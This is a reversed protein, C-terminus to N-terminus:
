KELRVVYWQLYGGNGVDLECYNDRLHIAKEEPTPFKDLARPSIDPQSALIKQLKSRLEEPTQFQEPHDTELVLFYDGQYMISDPM